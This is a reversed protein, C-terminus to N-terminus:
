LFRSVFARFDSYYEFCNYSILLSVVIRNDCLIMLKPFLFISFPAPYDILCLFDLSFWICRLELLLFLIGFDSLCFSFHTKQLFRCSLVFLILHFQLEGINLSF